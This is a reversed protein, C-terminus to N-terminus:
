IHILSLDKVKNDQPDNMRVYHYQDHNTTVIIQGSNTKDNFRYIKATQDSGIRSNLNIFASSTDVKNEPISLKSFEGTLYRRYMEVPDIRRLMLTETIKIASKSMEISCLKILNSKFLFM